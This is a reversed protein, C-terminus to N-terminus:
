PLYQLLLSAHPNPYPIESSCIAGGNFFNGSSNFRLPYFRVHSLAPHIRINKPRNAM